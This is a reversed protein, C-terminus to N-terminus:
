PYPVNAPWPRDAAIETCRDDLYLAGDPCLCMGTCIPTWDANPPAQDFSLAESCGSGDYAQADLVWRPFVGDCVVTRTGGGILGCASLLLSAAVVLVAMVSSQRDM